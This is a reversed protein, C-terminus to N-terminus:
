MWNQSTAWPLHQDDENWERVHHPCWIWHFHCDQGKIWDSLFLSLGQLCHLLSCGHSGSEEFFLICGICICAWDTGDGWAKKGEVCMVQMLPNNHRTFLQSRNRARNCQVSLEEGWQLPLGSPITYHGKDPLQLYDWYGGLIVMVMWRM